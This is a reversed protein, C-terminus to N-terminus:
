TLAYLRLDAGGQRTRLATQWPLQTHQRFSPDGSALLVPRLDARQELALELERYLERVSEASGIRRGHPPNTAIATGSPIQEIVARFDGCLWRVTDGVGADGANASASRIAKPDVDSGWVELVQGVRADRGEAGLREVWASFAARHPEHLPWDEFAFRRGLGPPLGLARRSAEIPIVGSGCFPDWLRTIPGGSTRELLQVMAAALTERLPAVEVRTRYGRKHMREGSAGISVTVRDRVVRVHVQQPVQDSAPEPLADVRLRMAIVRRVREAVADSHYLKSKQCVVALSLPREPRLYAHWPLKAAAEELVAFSTADFAKLRVRVSETLASCSHLRWLQELTLRGEVGGLVAKGPLGLATLEAELLPEIGPACAAFHAFTTDRAPVNRALM